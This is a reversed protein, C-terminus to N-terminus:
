LGMQAPALAEMTSLASAIMAHQEADGGSNAPDFNFELFLETLGAHQYRAVDERIEDLTGFLPRRSKGQRADQRLVTGRGVIRLSRPDRGAREAEGSLEEILPGVRDLPVNGAIYGDGLRAAREISRKAYGGVLIPPHPEQLPKPEIRSPPIRYFRGEFAVVRDTWISKLCRLYEDFRRGRADYPLGTAAYEDRSWGLGVGVDLRGNSVLDLTTLQKALIVPAFFPANVVATGLRIHQTRAAAYALAVASDLAREFSSPWRGEPAYPYGNQPSTPFLLRQLTWLSAYGLEEARRAVTILNDVTAWAGVVPLSVGIRM